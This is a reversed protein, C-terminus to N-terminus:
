FASGAAPPVNRRHVGDQQFPVNGQQHVNQAGGTFNGGAQRNQLIARRAAAQQEARQQAQEAIAGGYIKIFAYLSGVLILFPIAMLIVSAFYMGIGPIVDVLSSSYYYINWPTSWLAFYLLAFPYMVLLAIVFQGVFTMLVEGLSEAEALSFLTSYWANNYGMDVITSMSNRIAIQQDAVFHWSVIGYLPKLQNMLAQEKQKVVELSMRQKGVEDDLRQLRASESASPFWPMQRKVADRSVQATNVRNSQAILEGERINNLEQELIMMQEEKPDLKVVHNGMGHKSQDKKYQDDGYVSRKVQERRVDQSYTDDKENPAKRDYFSADYLDDSMDLDADAVASVACLVSSLLM